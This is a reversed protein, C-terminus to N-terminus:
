LFISNPYLHQTTYKYQIYRTSSTLAILCLFLRPYPISTAGGTIPISLRLTHGGTGEGGRPVRLWVLNTAGSGKSGMAVWLWVLHTAGAGKGGRPVRLWVRNTAGAGKGVRPNRLWVM